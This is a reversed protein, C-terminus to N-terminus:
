VKFLNLDKDLSATLNKLKQAINLLESSIAENNDSLKASRETKDVLADALRDINAINSAVEEITKISVDTMEKTQTAKQSVNKAKQSLEQSQKAGTDLETGIEKISNTVGQITTSIQSLSNQTREALVRVEEAVVAFGRGSSGARAAEIAANLALLNTQEAVEEIIGLVSKIENAQAILTQMKQSIDQEQESLINVGTTLNNLGDLMEELQAYSSLGLEMAKKALEKSESLGTNIGKAANLASSAQEKGEKASSLLNQSNQNINQSEQEVDRASTKATKVTEQILQIFKNVNTGVMGIEDKSKVEIRASLDGSGSTLDKSTNLLENIPSVVVKRLLYIVIAATLILCLAFITIFTINKSNIDARIDEYSYRLDMVGLVDGEKSNTHCALCSQKAKIPRILRLYENKGEKQIFDVIKPSSFQSQILEEDSQKKTMGFLSSVAQSRHVTISSVGQIKSAEDIASKIAEPDGILMSTQLTQSVSESLMKLSKESLHRLSGFLENSIIIQLIIFSLFLVFIMSIAIKKGISKGINM